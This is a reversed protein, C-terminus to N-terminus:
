RCFYAVGNYDSFVAYRKGVANGASVAGAVAGGTGYLHDLLDDFSFLYFQRNDIGFTADSAASALIQARAAREAGDVDFSYFMMTDDLVAIDHIFLIM